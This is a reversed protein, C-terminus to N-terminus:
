IRQIYPLKPLNVTSTAPVATLGEQLRGSLESVELSLSGLTQAAPTGLPDRLTAMCSPASSESHAFALAPM